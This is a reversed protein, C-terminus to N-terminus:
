VEVDENKIFMDNIISFHINMKKLEKLISNLLNEQEFDSVRVEDQEPGSISINQTNGDRDTAIMKGNAYVIM